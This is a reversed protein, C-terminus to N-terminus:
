TFNLRTKIARKLTVELQKATYTPKSIRNTIVNLLWWQYIWIQKMGTGIWVAMRTINLQEMVPIKLYKVNIQEYTGGRNVLLILENM